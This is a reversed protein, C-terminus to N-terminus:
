CDYLPCYTINDFFGEKSKKIVYSLDVNNINGISKTHMSVWGCGYINGDWDIFLRNMFANCKESHLTHHFRVVDTNRLSLMLKNQFAKIETKKPLIDKPCRGTPMLRHFYFRKVQPNEKIFEIIENCQFLLDRTMVFSIHLNDSLTKIFENLLHFCDMRALQNHKEGLGWLSVSIVYNYKKPQYLNIINLISENLPVDIVMDAQLTKNYYLIEKWQPHCFFCGGGMYIRINHKKTVELISRIQNFGLYSKEESNSNTGCYVCNSVCQNTCDVILEYM